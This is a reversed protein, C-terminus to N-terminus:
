RLVQSAGDSMKIIKIVSFRPKFGLLKTISNRNENWIGSLDKPLLFSRSFVYGFEALSADHPRAAIQVLSM